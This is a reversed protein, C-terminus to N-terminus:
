RAQKGSTLHNLAKHIQALNPDPLRDNHGLGEVEIWHKQESVLAAYLRKGHKIPVIQDQTGHIQIVPGTFRELYAISDFRNNMLYRVPIWRYHGAAVDVLSDFTRELILAKAGDHGALAAAVGGGLSRGYLVIDEPNLKYRKCLYARAAHADAIVGAETPTTESGDFGRFEAALIHLNFREGFRQIRADLWKARTGNGHLYLLAGSSGPRELLRGQLHTQDDATYAVSQIASDAAPAWQAREDMYAGPYVLRAEFFVLALLILAYGVFILKLM